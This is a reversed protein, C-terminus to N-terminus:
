EKSRNGFLNEAIRKLKEFDYGTTISGSYKDDNHNTDYWARNSRYSVEAGDFSGDKEKDKTLDYSIDIQKINYNEDYYAAIWRGDPLTIKAWSNDDASEIKPKPSMNAAILLTNNANDFVDQVKDKDKEKSSVDVRMDKINKKLDKGDKTVIKITNNDKDRFEIVGNQVFLTGGEPAEYTKSKSTVFKTIKEEKNYFSINGDSDKSLYGEEPAEYTKGKVTTAKIMKGDKNYFYISGDLDKTLYGGEPAEYTKGDKTVIKLNRGNEDQFKLTNDNMAYVKMGTHDRFEDLKKYWGDVSDLGNDKRYQEREENEMKSMKEIEQESYEHFAELSKTTQVSDMQYVFRILEGATINKIASKAKNGAQQLVKLVKKAASETFVKRGNRAEMNNNIENKLRNYEEQSIEGDGDSDLLNFISNRKEGLKNIPSEEVNEFDQQNMVYYKQEGINNKSSEIGM